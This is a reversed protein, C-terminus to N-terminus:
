RNFEQADKSQKLVRVKEDNWVKRGERGTIIELLIRLVYKFKRFKLNGVCMCEQLIM